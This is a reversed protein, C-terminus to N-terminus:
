RKGRLYSVLKRILEVALDISISTRPLEFLLNRKIEGYFVLSHKISKPQVHIYRVLNM